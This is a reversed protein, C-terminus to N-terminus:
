LRLASRCARKCQIQKTGYTCSSECYTKCADYDAYRSKPVEQEREYCAAAPPPSADPVPPRPSPTPPAPTPPAPADRGADAVVPLPSSTVPRTGADAFEAPQGADVPASADASLRVPPRPTQVPSLRGADSPQREVSPARGASAAAVSVPPAIGGASGVETAPMVPELTAGSGAGEVSRNAAAYWIAGGGGALLLAPLLLVMLAVPTSRQSM